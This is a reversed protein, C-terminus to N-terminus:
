TLYADPVLRDPAILGSLTFPSKSILHMPFFENM